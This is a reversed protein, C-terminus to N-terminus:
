NKPLQLVVSGLSSLKTPLLRLSRQENSCGANCWHQRPNRGSKLSGRENLWHSSPYICVEYEEECTSCYLTVKYAGNGLKTIRHALGANTSGKARAAKVEEAPANEM